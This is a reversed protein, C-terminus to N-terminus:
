HKDYCDEKKKNTEKLKKFIEVLCNIVIGNGAMKYLQTNSIGKDLVKDISTDNWGMLRWCERPTLRRISIWENSLDNVVVGVDACTTKLTPIMNKQVVGRKKDCRNTYVGDGVSAVAYGKKTAEPIIIINDKQVTTITNSVGEKNIEVHQHYENNEDLRGRLAAMIPEEIIYTDTARSGPCTTITWAIPDDKKRPRFKLGRILGNRNKMSCFCEILKESLFYKEDVEDELMDSLKKELPVEDPFTFFANEDLISIMFVRERNQPVGYKRANMVKWSNKYGLSSLYDLWAQFYSKFSKSVLNKVNEMILYRPLENEEKAVELLREVEWLLSSKTNSGKELGRLRGALSIDTCPFSYTWMDAPPLREIKSIDGFNYTDGHLLKYAQYAYKDIESIAMVEHDIKAEKLAQRQTGIGAFLEIVKLKNMLRIVMREVTILCNNEYHTFSCLFVGVILTLAM